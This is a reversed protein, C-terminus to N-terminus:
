KTSHGLGKMILFQLFILLYLATIDVHVQLRSLFVKRELKNKRKLKYLSHYALTRNQKKSQSSSPRKSNVVLKIQRLTQSIM